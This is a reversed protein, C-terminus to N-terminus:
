QEKGLEKLRKKAENDGQKAAKRYWKEAETKDIPVGDGDEYMVGINYQATAVGQEAAKRFWKLAEAYKKDEFYRVGLDNQADADGQEAAKSYWKIAETRNKAVGRGEDYMTAINFQAAADGQEAAKLYWIAAISDNQVVGKGNEYMIGLNLQANSSGQEAAKQFWKRAESYNQPVGINNYYMVGLKCQADTHGQEAAKQFLKIAEATDQEVGRGEEYMKGLAMQADSDGLEAAKIYWKAAETDSPELGDGKEYLLGLNRQAIAYGQEAAKLFWKAAESGNKEVGIGNAYMVGLSNQAYNFGQGASISYWRLAETYSQEVGRGEEYMKGLAWQAANNGQGASKQYWKVAEADDKKVGKGNEYMMGIFCQATASGQAAALEYCKLAISYNQEVGKGHEYKVGLACQAQANRQKAARTLWKIEEAESQPVGRGDHYMKVLALQAEALGKEAAKLYWKAAETDNQVVGRGEEYMLGLNFQGGEYNNEASKRFWKIAESDSQAVGQGEKYLVGLHNQAIANGKDAAMLYLDCASDYNGEEEYQSGKDLLVTSSNKNKSYIFYVCGIFSFIVVLLVVCLKIYDRLTHTYRLTGASRSEQQLTEDPSADNLESSEDKADAIPILPKTAFRYLIYLLAMVLIVIAPIIFKGFELIDSSVLMTHGKYVFWVIYLLVTFFIFVLFSIFGKFLNIRIKSLYKARSYPLRHNEKYREAWKRIWYYANRIFLSILVTLLTTLIFSRILQLNAMTPLKIYLMMTSNQFYEWDKGEFYIINPWVKMSEHLPNTEIPVDYNIRVSKIPLESTFSLVYAYQSIDAATFINLNNVLFSAFFPTLVLKDQVIDSNSLNRTGIEQSVTLGNEFFHPLKKGSYKNQYYEEDFMSFRYDSRSNIFTNRHIFISDQIWESREDFKPYLPIFTPINTAIYSVNFLHNINPIQSKVKQFNADDFFPGRKISDTTKSNVLIDMAMGSNETFMRGNNRYESNLYDIFENQYTAEGSFKNYIDLSYVTDLVEGKSNYDALENSILVFNSVTAVQNTKVYFVLVMISLVLYIITRIFSSKRIREKEKKDPKGWFFIAILASIISNIM